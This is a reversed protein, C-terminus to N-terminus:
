GTGVGHDGSERVAPGVMETGGANAARDDLVVLNNVAGDTDTGVERRELGVRGDLDALVAEGEVTDADLEVALGAAIAQDVVDEFAVQGLDGVAAAAIQTALVEPFAVVPVVVLAKVAVAIAIAVIRM